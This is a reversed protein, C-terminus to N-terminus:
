LLKRWRDQAEEELKNVRRNAMVIDKVIIPHLFLAQVSSSSLGHSASSPAAVHRDVHASWSCRASVQKKRCFLLGHM